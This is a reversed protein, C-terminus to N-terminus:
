YFKRSKKFFLQNDRINKLITDKQADFGFETSKQFGGKTTLYLEISEEFNKEKTEM